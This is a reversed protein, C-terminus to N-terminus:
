KKSVSEELKNKEVSLRKSLSQLCIDLGDTTGQKQKEAIKEFFENGITKIDSSKYEKIITGLELLETYFSPLLDQRENKILALKDKLSTIYTVMHSIFEKPDEISRGKDAYYVVSDSHPMGDIEEASSFAYKYWVLFIMAVWFALQLM